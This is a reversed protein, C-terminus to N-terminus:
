SVRLHDVLQEVLVPITSPYAEVSAGFGADSLARTTVPGISAATMGSMVDAPDLGVSRLMSLFNRVTSPSTFTIADFGGARLRDVVEECPKAQVTRYVPAVDVVAGLSRLTDPLVERAELARPILIRWGPGVGRSVFEESIAEARFDMPPVFDAEVGFTRLVRATSDGVAAILPDVLSAPSGGSSDLRVFFRRVANASTFVIWDYDSVHGLAQDIPGFDPPDVIEIVPCAVVEAGLAVLPATLEGSQESTRTVIVSRGRLPAGSTDTTEPADVM